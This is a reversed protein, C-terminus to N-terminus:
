ELDVHQEGSRISTLRGSLHRIYSISHGDGDHMEVLSCVDGGAPACAKFIALSGDAFRMAWKWGVWGLYAGYFSSPTSDHRFVATALSTGPTVRRFRIRGGDALILEAWTLDNIDGRVYWEGSHTTGVGFHRSRRDGSLYTRRLVIAINGDMAFDDDERIYLGTPIDVHGKHRARVSSQEHTPGGHPTRLLFLAGSWFPGALVATAGVLASLPIALALVKLFRLSAATVDRVSRL